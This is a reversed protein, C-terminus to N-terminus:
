HEQCLVSMVTWDRSVFFNQEPHSTELLQSPGFRMSRRCKTNHRVHM